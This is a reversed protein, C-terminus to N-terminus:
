AVTFHIESFIQNGGNPQLAQVEIAYEVGSELFESPVTLQNFTAPLDVSLVQAPTTDERTVIVQYTDAGNVPAWSIVTGDAPTTEGDAPTLIEPADLVDHSLHAVGAMEQGEITEGEVRYDGEPWLRKFEEFPQETFPPESSEWFLETMGLKGLTSRPRVDLIRRGDPRFVEVEKWPEADLFLQLGADGDTANVEIKLRLDEFPVPPQQNAGAIHPGILPTLGVAGLLTLGILRKRLQM